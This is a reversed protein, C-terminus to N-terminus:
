SLVRQFQKVSGRKPAETTFVLHVGGARRPMNTNYEVEEEKEYDDDDGINSMTATAEVLPFSGTVPFIIEARRRDVRAIALTNIIPRM